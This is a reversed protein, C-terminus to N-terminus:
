APVNAPIEEFSCVNGSVEDWSGVEKIHAAYHSRLQRYTDPKGRQVAMLLLGLFNLLPLSPFIKLELNGGTVEQAGLGSKAETLRRKYILLSRTADRVNGVMLYPLVARAAYLPATHSEDETYWDFELNALHEPSSKSGLILHREADYPERELNFM